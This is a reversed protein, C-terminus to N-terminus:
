RCTTWGFMEKLSLAKNWLNFDTIEGSNSTSLRIVFDMPVISQDLYNFNDVKGQLSQGLWLLEQSHIVNDQKGM